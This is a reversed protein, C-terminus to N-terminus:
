PIRPSATEAPEQEPLVSGTVDSWEPRLNELRAAKTEGSLVVPRPQVPLQDDDGFRVRDFAAWGVREELLDGVDRIDEWRGSSRQDVRPVPSRLRGIPVRPEYYTLSASIALARSPTMPIEDHTGVTM